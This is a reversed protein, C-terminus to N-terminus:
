CIEIIYTENSCSKITTGVKEQNLRMANNQLCPTGWGSSNDGVISVENIKNMTSNCNVSSNCILSAMASGSDHKTVNENLQTKQTINPLFPTGWSSSTEGFANTNSGVTTSGYANSDQIFSAVKMSSETETVTENENTPMVNSQTSPSDLCSSKEGESHVEPNMTVVANSNALSKPIDSAM